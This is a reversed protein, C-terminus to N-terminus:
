ANKSRFDRRVDYEALGELKWVLADRAAQLYRHLDAKADVDIMRALRGWAASLM